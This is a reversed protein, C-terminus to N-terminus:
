DLILMKMFQFIEILRMNLDIFEYLDIYGDGSVDVEKILLELDMDSVDQGLLWMVVGFEERFIKGDGNCDYVKFLDLFEGVLQFLLDFVMSVFLFNMIGFNVVGIWCLEMFLDM